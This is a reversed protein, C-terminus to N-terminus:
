RTIGPIHAMLCCRCFECTCNGEALDDFDQTIPIKKGSMALCWSCEREDKVSAPRYATIGASRKRALDLRRSHKHWARLYIAKVTKKPDVTFAAPTLDDLHSQTIKLRANLGLSRKRDTSLEPADRLSKKRLLDELVRERAEQKVFPSKRIEEKLYERFEDAAVVSSQQRIFPESRQPTSETKSGIWRMLGKLM